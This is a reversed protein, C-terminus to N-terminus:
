NKLGSNGQPFSFSNKDKKERSRLVFFSNISQGIVSRLPVHLSEDSLEIPSDGLSILKEGWNM